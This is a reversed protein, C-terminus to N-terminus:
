VNLAWQVTKVMNSSATFHQSDVSISARIDLITQQMQPTFGMEVAWDATLGFFIEETPGPVLLNLPSLIEHTSVDLEVFYLLKTM